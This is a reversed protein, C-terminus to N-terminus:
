PLSSCRLNVIKYLSYNSFCATDAGKQYKPIFRLGPYCFQSSLRVLTVLVSFSVAVKILGGLPNGNLQRSRSLFRTLIRGIERSATLQLAM